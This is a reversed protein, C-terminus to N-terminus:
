RNKLRIPERWPFDLTSTAKNYDTIMSTSNLFIRRRGATIAHNVEGHRGESDGNPGNLTNKFALRTVFKTEDTPAINSNDWGVIMGDNKTSKFPKPDYTRNAGSNATETLLVVRDPSDINGFIANAYPTYLGYTSAIPPGGAPNISYAYETEDAAPCVLKTRKALLPAIDSVWTYPIDSGQEVFPEGESNANYMPPFRDDHQESYLTLSSMIGNMNSQCSSKWAKARMFHYVPILGVVLLAFGTLFVKADKRSMYQAGSPASAGEPANPDYSSSESM